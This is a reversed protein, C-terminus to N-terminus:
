FDFLNELARCYKNQKQQCFYRRRGRQALFHRCQKWFKFTAIKHWFSNAWVKGSWLVMNESDAHFFTEKSTYSVLSWPGGIHKRNRFFATTFQCKKCSQPLCKKYIRLFLLTKVFELYLTDILEYKEIMQFGEPNM